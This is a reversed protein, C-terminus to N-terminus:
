SVAHPMAAPEPAQEPRVPPNDFLELPTYGWGDFAMPVAREGGERELREEYSHM